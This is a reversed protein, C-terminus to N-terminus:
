DDRLDGRLGFNQRARLSGLSELRRGVSEDSELAREIEALRSMVFQSSEDISPTQQPSIDDLYSCWIGADYWGGGPAGITVYDGDRDHGIRVRVVGRGLELMSEGFALGREDADFEFGLSLLESRLRSVEAPGDRGSVASV